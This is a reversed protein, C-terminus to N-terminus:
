AEIEVTEADFVGDDGGFRRSIAYGVAVGLAVVVPASRLVRGAVSRSGEGSDSEAAGTAAGEDDATSGITAPGFQADDLHIEFLTVDM